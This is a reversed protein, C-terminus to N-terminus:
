TQGRLNWSSLQPSPAAWPRPQTTSSSSPERPTGVGLFASFSFSAAGPGPPPAPQVQVWRKRWGLGGGVEGMGDTGGKGIEEGRGEM